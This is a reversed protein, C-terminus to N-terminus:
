SNLSPSPISIGAREFLRVAKGAQLYRVHARDVRAPPPLVAAAAFGVALTNFVRRDMDVIGAERLAITDEGELIADPDGLILPLLASRPMGVTDTFALLRRVDYIIDRKGQEIRCVVPQSWGDVLSGLETQSLGTAARFISVFAVLGVRALAQRMPASDWLWTPAIERSERSARQCPACLPESNYRSLVTVRCAACVRGGVQGM